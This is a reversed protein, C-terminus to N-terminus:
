KKIYTQNRSTPKDPIGMVILGEALAPILYNKRLNAKSKLGLFTLLQEGTYPVDYEMVDLLKQVYRSRFASEKRIQQLAQDLTQNIKELMFLIFPDSNGAIHSESIANYYDDQYKHIHSELPLYQFVPNWKSLLATQWLRAMRGNGDSFPHIFVFEYHYVSSYILPHISNHTNNLWIFLNRMHVPILRPPPAIFICVDGQFVGEDHNRFKGASSILSDTMIGHLKKLEELSFPDFEGILEYANYANKVEQIENWPGSVTKGDIVSHVENLSLSNAEIAVSAHVSRIRNIHRLYPKSAFMHFSSIQGTKESIEAAM